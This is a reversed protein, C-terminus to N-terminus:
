SDNTAPVSGRSRHSNCEADPPGPSAPRATAPGSEGVRRPSRRQRGWGRCRVPRATFVGGKEWASSAEGTQALVDILRTGVLHAVAEAASMAPTENVARDLHDLTQRNLESARRYGGVYDPRLTDTVIVLINPAELEPM